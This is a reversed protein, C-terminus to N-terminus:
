SDQVLPSISLPFGVTSILAQALMLPTMGLGTLCPCPSITEGYALWRNTVQEQVQPFRVPEDAKMTAILSTTTQHMGAHM